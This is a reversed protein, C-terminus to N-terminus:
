LHANLSRTAVAAGAGCGLGPHPTARRPAATACACWVAGTYGGVRAANAGSPGPPCSGMRPTPDATHTRQLAGRHSEAVRLEYSFM